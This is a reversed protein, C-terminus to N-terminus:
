RRGGIIMEYKERTYPRHNLKEFTELWAAHNEPTMSEVMEAFNKLVWEVSGNNRMNGACILAGTMADEFGRRYEESFEQKEKGM